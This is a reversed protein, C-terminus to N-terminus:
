LNPQIKCKRTESENFVMEDGLIPNSYFFFFFFFRM